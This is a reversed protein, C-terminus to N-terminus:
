VRLIGALINIIEKINGEPRKEVLEM